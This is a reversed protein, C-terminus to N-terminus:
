ERDIYYMLISFDVLNCEGDDNLDCSSMSTEANAERVLSSKWYEVWIKAISYLEQTEIKENQNTDFVRLFEPLYTSEGTDTFPQLITKIVNIIKTEVNDDDSDTDSSKDSDESPTEPVAPICQTEDFECSPHCTLTGSGYGLDVCTKGMLDENDCEEEGEAVGDGCIGIKVTAPVTDSDAGFVAVNKSTIFLLFLVAMVALFRKM